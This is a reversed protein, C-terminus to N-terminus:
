GIFSSDSGIINKEPISRLEEMFSIVVLSLAWLLFFCVRRGKM